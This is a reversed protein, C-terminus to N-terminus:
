ESKDYDLFRSVAEMSHAAEDRTVKRGEHLALNRLTIAGRVDNVAARDINNETAFQDILRIVSRPRNSDDLDELKSRLEQELRSTAMILASRYEGQQFLRESEEGEDIMTIHQSSILWARIASILREPDEYVDDRMIVRHRAIDFPLGVAPDAILLISDPDKTSLALIAESIVGPSSIDFIAMKARSLLANLKVQVTEGPTFVDEPFIPTVELGRFAEDIIPRYTSVLRYPVSVFCSNSDQGPLSLDILTAENTSRSASIAERRWYEDIETFFRKLVDGYDDGDVLPLNIVRVGRREFRSVAHTSANVTVVWLPRVMSGLRNKLLALIQRTDPDDLSYGILIATHDILSAALYTVFLPNKELFGDYDEETLVMKHPHHVDGHLKLVSPGIYPNVTTLQFEELIPLCSKHALDYAKELLLDFNTTIVREFNIKAFALHVSGPVADHVRVLEAVRAVTAVRGYAHEYASITDLTNEFDFNSIEEALKTGLTRWDVPPAGSAISANKSLGAGVIPMWRGAVLDELIPPPVLSLLSDAM